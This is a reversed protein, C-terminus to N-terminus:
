NIIALKVKASVLALLTLQLWHKQAKTQQLTENSVFGNEDLERLLSAFNVAVPFAKVRIIM